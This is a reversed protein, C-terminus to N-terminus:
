VIQKQDNSVVARYIMCRWENKSSIRSNHPIIFTTRIAIYESCGCFAWLLLAFWLTFHLSFYVCCSPPSKKKVLLIKNKHHCCVVILERLDDVTTLDGEVFERRKRCQEGCNISVPCLLSLLFPSLSVIIHYHATPALLCTEGCICLGVQASWMLWPSYIPRRRQFGAPRCMCIYLQESSYESLRRSTKSHSEAKDSQWM